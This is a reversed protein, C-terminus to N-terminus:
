AATPLHTLALLETCFAEGTFKLCDQHIRISM